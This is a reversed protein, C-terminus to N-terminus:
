IVARSLPSGEDRREGRALQIAKLKELSYNCSEQSYSAPAFATALLFLAIGRLNM